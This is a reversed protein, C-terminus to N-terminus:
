NRTNTHQPHLPLRLCDIVPKFLLAPLFAFPPSRAGPPPAQWQHGRGDRSSALFPSVAGITGPRNFAKIPLSPSSLLFPSLRPVVPNARSRRRAPSAPPLLFPLPSPSVSSRPGPTLSLLLFPFLFPVRAPAPHPAIPRNPHFSLLTLNERKKRKKKL